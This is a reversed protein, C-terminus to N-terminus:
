CRLTNVGEQKKSLESTAENNQANLMSICLLSTLILTKKM